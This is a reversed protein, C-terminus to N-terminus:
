ESQLPSSAETEGVDDNETDPEEPELYYTTQRALRGNQFVEIVWLPRVLEKEKDLPKMTIPFGIRRYQELASVFNRQDIYDLNDSLPTGVVNVEALAKRRAEDLENMEAYYQKMKETCLRKEALRIQKLPQLIAKHFPVKWKKQKM